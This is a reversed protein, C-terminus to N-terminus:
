PKVEGALTKLFSVLQSTETPTLQINLQYYAMQEVAQELTEARGDHFYPATLEVNRLGPVKFVHRDEEEGTYTFRGLDLPNNDDKDKFYDNMVGMKAFLNGGLNIGQHCSICGYKRFVQYGELEEPTLISQHGKLYLDFRSNPTVLTSLYDAIAQQVWEVRIESEGFAEEFQAQYGADQQLRAIVQAWTNNMQAPSIVSDDIMDKLTAARGNWFQRFNYVSNLVTPTNIRGAPNHQGISFRKNDDGGQELIHCSSCALDNNQSLATDYFLRKGLTRASSSVMAYEEIPQTQQDIEGTLTNIQVQTYTPEQILIQTQHYIFYFGICGFVIYLLKILYKM